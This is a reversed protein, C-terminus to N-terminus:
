APPAPSKPEVRVTSRGDLIRQPNESMLLRATEEGMRECIRTYTEAPSVPRADAHHDSSILDALGTELMRWGLSEVQPGYYGTLSGGNVQLLAGADRWTSIEALAIPRRNRRFREPHSIIPKKGCEIVARVIEACDVELDFGFEILAYDTGRLGLEKLAFAARTNEVTDALIEQNFYLTPVDDRGALAQALKEFETELERFRAEFAGPDTVLWTFIHSSTALRTVGEARMASLHRLSEALSRSGDDVAPVLHNHIDALPPLQADATKATTM